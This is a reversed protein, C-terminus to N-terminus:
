VSSSGILWELEVRGPRISRVGRGAPNVWPRVVGRVVVRRQVLDMDEWKERARPGAIEYLLPHVSKSRARERAAAIQPELSAEIGALSAASLAIRGDKVTTALERAEALQQELAEALALAEKVEEDGGLEALAQAFAPREVYALLAAQVHDDLMGVRVCVGFCSRCSYALDKNKTAVPRLQQLQERPCVNCYSIGSFLHKVATNRQFRRDPSELIKKCVLYTSPKIIGDWQANGIVEGQHEREGVNSARLLVKKVTIPVWADSDPAPVKRENLRQAISYLTQGAAVRGAIEKVVKSRVPDPEQRILAGTHEDYIRRYGYPTRGHPRGRQANAATTRLIGDRINDAEQESQLANIGTIFRDNGKSLDYVTGNYCLLVKGRECVDRIRLYVRMDRTARSSAWVVLVDCEAHRRGPRIGDELRKMMAEFDPRTDKSYRSAGRGPDAFEAVVEWGRWDCFKRNEASQDQSSTNGKRSTVSNRDYIFSRLRTSHDLDPISPM